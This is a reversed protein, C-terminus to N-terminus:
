REPSTFQTERVTSLAIVTESRALFRRHKLEALFPEIDGLSPMRVKVCYSWAGTVHHCEAVCPHDAMFTRFAAEDADPSLGVWVYALVDLGLASHDADITFRRIVGSTVLRRIRENVSSPSLEVAAGIDTLSRRADQALIGIIKRDIEDM